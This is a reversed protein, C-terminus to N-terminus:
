WYISVHGPNASLRASYLADVMYAATWVMWLAVWIRGLCRIWLPPISDETSSRCNHHKQQIQEVNKENAVSKEL